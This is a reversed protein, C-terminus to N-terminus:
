RLSLIQWNNNIAVQKLKDDPDVAIATGVIEFLPMDNISDSYFVAQQICQEDISQQRLYDKLRRVKHPGLSLNAPQTATAFQAGIIEDIGYLKAVARVKLEDTASIVILKDGSQQHQEVLAKAKQLWFEKRIYSIYTKFFDDFQDVPIADHGEKVFALYAEGDLKEQMYQEYFYDNRQNHQKADAWVQKKLMENWLYDSDGALLTNDLDFLALKM